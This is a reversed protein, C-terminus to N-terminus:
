QAGQARRGVEPDLSQSLQAKAEAPLKLQKSEFLDLLAAHVRPDPDAALRAVEEVQVPGLAGLAKLAAVRCSGVPDNLAALVEARYEKKAQQGIWNLIQTRVWPSEERVSKIAEAKLADTGASLIRQIAGWRVVESADNVAAQIMRRSSLENTPDIQEVVQLRVNPVDERLFTVAIVTAEPSNLKILADVAAARTRWSRAAYLLSLLGGLAKDKSKEAVITAVQRNHDFPGRALPTRLADLAEPTGQFLLAQAAMAANWGIASKLEEALQPVFQPASLKTLAYSAQIRARRDREAFLGTLLDVAEANIETIQAAKRIRADLESAPVEPAATATVPDASFRLPALSFTISSDEIREFYEYYPEPAVSILRIQTTGVAEFLPNLDIEVPSWQNLAGIPVVIWPEERLPVGVPIPPAAGFCVYGRRGNSFEIRLAFHDRGGAKVQTRLVRADKLDMAAFGAEPIAVDVKGSRFFGKETIELYDGVQPDNAMEGRLNGESRMVSQYAPSFRPAEPPASPPLNPAFGLIQAESTAGSSPLQFLVANQWRGEVFGVAQTGQPAKAGFIGAKWFPVAVKDRQIVSSEGPSHLIPDLAGGAWAEASDETLLPLRALPDEAVSAWSAPAARGARYWRRFRESSETARLDLIPGWSQPGVFQATTTLFPNDFAERLVPVRYGVANARWSVQRVWSAYLSLALRDGDALPSRTFYSISNVPMGQIETLPVPDVLGAHIVFIGHFPGRDVGDDADFAHSNVRPAIVRQLFEPGLPNATGAKIETREPDSDIELNLQVDIQHGTTGLVMARFRALAQRVVEQQTRDIDARRYRFTGDPLQALLDVRSLVFIKAKWPMMKQGSAASNRFGAVFEGWGGDGKRPRSLYDGVIPFRQGQWEVHPGAFPDTGCPPFTIPVSQGGVTEAGLEIRTQGHSAAVTGYFALILTLLRASKLTINLRSDEQTL